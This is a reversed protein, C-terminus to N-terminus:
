IKSKKILSEVRIFYINEIAMSLVYCCSFVIIGCLKDGNCLLLYILLLSLASVTKVIKDAVYFAVLFTPKHLVIWRHIRMMIIQYILFFGGFVGCIYSIQSTEAYQAMIYSLLSCIIIIGGLMIGNYKISLFTM